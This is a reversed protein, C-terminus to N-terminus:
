DDVGEGGSSPSRQDLNDESRNIEEDQENGNGQWGEVGIDFWWCDIM